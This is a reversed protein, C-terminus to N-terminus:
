QMDQILIRTIKNIRLVCIFHVVRSDINKGAKAHTLM